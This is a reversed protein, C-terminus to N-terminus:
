YWCTPLATGGYRAFAIASIEEATAFYYVESQKDRLKLLDKEQDRTPLLEVIDALLLEYCQFMEENICKTACADAPMMDGILNYMETGANCTVFTYPIGLGAAMARAGATKGVSPDGRLMVNNMIRPSNRSGAVMQCATVIEKPLIYEDGIVPIMAKEEENLTRSPNAFAGIFAATTRFSRRRKKPVGAFRSLEGVREDPVFQKSASQQENKESRFSIDRVKAEIREM